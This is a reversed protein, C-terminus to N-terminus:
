LGVFKYGRTPRRAPTGDGCVGMKISVSCVTEASLQTGGVTYCVPAISKIKNAM